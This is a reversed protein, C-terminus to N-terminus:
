EYKKKVTRKGKTPIGWPTVWHCGGNTRGGHPHDVPNMAIGRVTPRKGKLRNIGAKGLYELRHKVNSINGLTGFSTTPVTLFSGSPLRIKYFTSNKQILQCSTGASRAFKSEVNQNLSLSHFMSGTPINKLLTRYGLKLDTIKTSCSLLSGPYVFATSLTKFFKKKWTL